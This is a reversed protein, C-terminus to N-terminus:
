QNQNQNQKARRAEIAPKEYQDAIARSSMGLTPLDALRASMEPEAIREPHLQQEIYASLGIARVREVDGPRPGFAIRNLVHLIAQDDAPVSAAFVPAIRAIEAVGLALVLAILVGKLPRM